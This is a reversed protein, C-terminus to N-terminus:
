DVKFYQWPAPATISVPAEQILSQDKAAVFRRVHTFVNLLSENFIHRNLAAFASNKDKAIELNKILDQTKPDKSVFCLSKHLNPTFLMQVDGAPDFAWFGTQFSSVSLKGNVFMEVEDKQTESQIPDQNEIGLSLFIKEMVQVFFSNPNSKSKLWHIPNEQFKMKCEVLDNANLKSEIQSQFEDSSIYGPLLDTFLSFESKREGHAISKFTERFAKAFVLRCRKDNFPAANPNIVLGVLRSAPAYSVQTKKKLNHFDNITFRLESGSIITTSDMKQSFDVAESPTMYKFNIKTPVKSGFVENLDRKEFLLESDSKSILRYHGSSPIESCNIKNNSLDVCRKPIVSFLELCFRFIPHDLNKRFRIEIKQGDVQVGEPLTELPRQATLWDEVGVIDELVPFKPRARIMRLVAFAIDSPEILSGDSFYIGKKVTWIMSKTKENYNFSDLITSKLDGRQDAEIPTAYIMRAVPMNVTQDADLPDLSNVIGTETIVYTYRDSASIKNVM